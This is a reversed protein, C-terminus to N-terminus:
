PTWRTSLPLRFPSLGRSDVVEALREGEYSFKMMFFEPREDLAKLFLKDGEWLKKTILEKKDLWVLSFATKRLNDYSKQM